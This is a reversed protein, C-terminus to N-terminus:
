YLQGQKLSLPTFKMALNHVGEHTDIRLLVLTMLYSQIDDCCMSM